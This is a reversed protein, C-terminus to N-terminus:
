FDTNVLSELEPDSDFFDGNDEEAATTSSFYEAAAEMNDFFTARGDDFVYAQNCFQLASKADQTVLLIGARQGLEEVITAFRPRDDKSGASVSTLVYQEFPLCIGVSFCFRSLVEKPCRDGRTNVFDGLAAVESVKATFVAEDVEYLRAIFRASAALPLHKQVCHTAPIPWSISHTRTIAGRDPADASCILNVLKEMGAETRGLFAVRAKEEIRINLNEYTVRIAGLRVRKTVNKFEITM